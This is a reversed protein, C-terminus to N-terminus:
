AAVFYGAVNFLATNDDTTGNLWKGESVMINLGTLVLSSQKLIETTFVVKDQTNSTVAPAEFITVVMESTVQKNANIIIATIIFNKGSKPAVINVATDDVAASATFFTSFGAPATVLQGRKTVIALNGSGRGDKIQIDLGM